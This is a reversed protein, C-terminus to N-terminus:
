MGHLVRRANGRKLNRYRALAWLPFYKPYGHYRLYFVRPFGGGTYHAQDWLGDAAQHRELWAVGRAVAPHDVEGAAMLGLMAWATQSATSPATQHGKRGLAYSDASEGWGGDSNQITVLWRVARRVMASAPDVGAVNLACLVSWTGYIYNVGWRGWWSGEAHQDRRLWAMAQMMRPSDLPEGLQALMSVVRASVDATSPDLLAGHDAFPIDNLYGYDNDADFAGWGGDKSQLGLTWETGRAIAEDYDGLSPGARDMAMVVVATDDLDPYHDNGYQFAWGGPRVDPREGAWDGKVDLIQRPKLWDLARVASEEAADGGVELMAHAALASDWVPSVCPQCYVEGGEEDDGGRYVLLKEVSARAIARHPHDAAYGLADFMMVSNAMAPYIAGLGDEGNLRTVVIDVCARIAKDRMSRPWYRRGRKLLIDLAGFGATWLRKGETARPLPPRGPAFLEEVHVGRPNKAVPRLAGLVLLPVIVTRAWYSMKSLHIPFSRPLLIIEPPMEPITDWPGGFLALQIRTFVNVARAGGRKLIETRARAMHPADIDDGIMKLAFYAKVTASIDFAGDQYLSWGGHPAQIRRLYRGIAAELPLHDPEGLYHRLLIYEAPITADAELEFVWHGDERQVRGLADAARAIVDEIGSLPDPAIGEAQDEVRM